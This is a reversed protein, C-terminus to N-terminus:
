RRGLADSGEQLTGETEDDELVPDSPEVVDPTDEDVTVGNAEDPVEAGVSSDTGPLTVLSRGAEDEVLIDEALVQHGSSRPM